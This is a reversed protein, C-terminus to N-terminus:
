HNVYDEYALCLVFAEILRLTASSPVIFAGDWERFIMPVKEVGLDDKKANSYFAGITDAHELPFKNWVETIILGSSKFQQFYFLSKVVQPMEVWVCFETM